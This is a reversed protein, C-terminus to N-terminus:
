VLIKWFIAFIKEEEHRYVMTLDFLTFESPPERVMHWIMVIKDDGGSALWRGNNSWRVSNVCAPHFLSWFRFDCFASKWSKIASSQSTGLHNDMQCLLKPVAEKGEAEPHLLPVM